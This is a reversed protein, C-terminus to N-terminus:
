TLIAHYCSDVLDFSLQFIVFVGLLFHNFLAKCICYYFYVTFLLNQLEGYPQIGSVATAIGLVM